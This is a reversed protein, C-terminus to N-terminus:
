LSTDSSLRRSLGGICLRLKCFVMKLFVYGGFIDNGSVFVGFIVRGNEQHRSYTGYNNM